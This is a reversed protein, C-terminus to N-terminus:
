SLPVSEVLKQADVAVPLFLIFLVLYFRSKIKM